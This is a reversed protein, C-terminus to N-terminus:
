DDTIRLQSILIKEDHKQFAMYVRFEGNDTTLSAIAYPTTTESIQTQYVFDAPKNNNFFSQIILVAQPKSYIDNSSGIELEINENFFMALEKSNGAIFAASVHSLDSQSLASGSIYFCFIIFLVKKYCVIEM